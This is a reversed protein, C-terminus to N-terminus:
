GSRRALLAAVVEAFGEVQRGSTVLPVGPVREVSVYTGVARAVTADEPSNGVAVAAAPDFGRAELDDAVAGAKGVGRPVLHYSRLHRSGGNDVLQAWGIGAADLEAAAWELEIRGRLLVGGERGEDWPDAVELGGLRLVVDLAGAALLAERPTSGLGRPCAGWVYTQVGDRVVVAGLEAIHDALGLIRADQALDRARRGSVPVVTVGARYVAVLAEAGVATPRGDVTHLLSGRRGLLTGDLDVYLVATPPLAALHGALNM